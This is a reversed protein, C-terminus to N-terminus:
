LEKQSCLSQAILLLERVGKWVGCLTTGPLQAM